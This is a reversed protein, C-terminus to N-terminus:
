RGRRRHQPPGATPTANAGSNSDKASSGSSPVFTTQASLTQDNVHATATVFVPDTGSAAGFHVNFSAIGSKDTKTPGYKKSFGPSQVTVSVPIGSAGQMNQVIRVFVTVSGGTPASNSVWTGIEYASTVPTPTVSGVSPPVIVVGSPATPNSNQQTLSLDANETAKIIQQYGILGGVIAVLFIVAFTVLLGMHRRWAGFGSWARERLSFPLATMFRERLSRRPFDVFVRSMDDDLGPEQWRWTSDDEVTDAESDTWTDNWTVSADAEQHAQEQAPPELTAIVGHEEEYEQETAPVDPVIPLLASAHTTAQAQSRAAAFTTVASEIQTTLSKATEQVTKLILDTRVFKRAAIARKRRAATSHREM